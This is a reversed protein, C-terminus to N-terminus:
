ILIEPTPRVSALIRHSRPGLEINRELGRGFFSNYLGKLEENRWIEEM